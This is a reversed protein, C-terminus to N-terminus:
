RYIEREIDKLTKRCQAIACLTEHADELARKTSKITKCSYFIAIFAFFLTMLFCFTIMCTGM